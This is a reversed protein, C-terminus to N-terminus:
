EVDWDVVTHGMMKRQFIPVIEDGGDDVKRCELGFTLAQNRTAGLTEFGAANGAIFDEAEGFVAQFPTRARMEDSGPAYPGAGNAAHCLQAAQVVAFHELARRGDVQSVPVGFGERALIVNLVGSVQDLFTEVQAQTPRTSTTFSGSATYEPVIAAVDQLGGYSKAAASERVVITITREETRGAATVIRCTVDYSQGATGGSLWITATTTTNSTSDETIGSAVTWSVTNITDGSLWEEWDVVYDSVADPDKVFRQM